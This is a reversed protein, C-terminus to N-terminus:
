EPLQIALNVAGEFAEELLLVSLYNLFLAPHQSTLYTNMESTLKEFDVMQGFAPHHKCAALKAKIEQESMLVRARVNPQTQTGNRKRGWVIEPPLYNAAVTRVPYRNWGNQIQWDAPFALFHEVLDVDLLPYRYALGYSRAIADSAELRGAVSPYQLSRLVRHYYSGDDDTRYFDYMREALRCRTLYDKTFCLLEIKDRISKVPLKYRDATHRARLSKAMLQIGQRFPKSNERFKLTLITQWLKLYRKEMALQWLVGQGHNTVGEDGGFGSLLVEAGRNAALTYLQDSFIQLRGQPIWGTHNICTRISETAAYGEGNAWAHNIAPYLGLTQNILWNEDKPFPYKEAYWQPLCHSIAFIQAGQRAAMATVLSSDIGGSLEAATLGHGPVRLSIARRLLRGFEDFAEKQMSPKYLRTAQQPRWYEAPDNIHKGRGSLYHGPMLRYVGEFATKSTANSIGCLIETLYDKNYVMRSGASLALSAPCSSLVIGEPSRSYYLPCVGFHDRLAVFGKSLTDFAVFAFEGRLSFQPTKEPEDTIQVMLDYLVKESFNHVLVDGIVFFRGGVMRAFSGSAVRAAGFEVAEFWDEKRVSTVSSGRPWVEISSPTECTVKSDTIRCLWHSM